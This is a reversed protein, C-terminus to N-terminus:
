IYWIFGDEVGCIPQVHCPRGRGLLRKRWLRHRHSFCDSDWGGGRRLGSIRWLGAEAASV